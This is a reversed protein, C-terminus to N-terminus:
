TRGAEAAEHLLAPAGLNEIAGLPKSDIATKRAETSEKEAVGHKLSKASVNSPTNLILPASDKIIDILGNEKAVHLSTKGKKDPLDVKAGANLLVNFAAAHGKEAALHHPTKDEKDGLDLNAKAMIFEKIINLYGLAAALHLPTQKQRNAIDVESNKEMLALFMDMNRNQISWHLASQGNRDVVNVNGDMRIFEHVKAM